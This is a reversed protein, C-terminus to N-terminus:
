RAYGASLRGRDGVRFGDVGNQQGGIKARSTVFYQPVGATEGVMEAGAQVDDMGDLREAVEGPEPDFGGNGLFGVLRIIGVSVGADLPSELLPQIRKAPFHQFAVGFPQDGINLDDLTRGGAGDQFFGLPHVRIHDDEARVTM